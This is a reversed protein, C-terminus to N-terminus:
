KRKLFLCLSFDDTRMEKAVGAGYCRGGRGALLEVSLVFERFDPGQYFGAQGLVPFAIEDGILFFRIHHVIQQGEQRLPHQLHVLL